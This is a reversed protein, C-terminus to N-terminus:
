RILVAAIISLLVAVRTMMSVREGYLWASLFIPIFVYLTNVAVVLSLDGFKIAQLFASFGAFSLFGM